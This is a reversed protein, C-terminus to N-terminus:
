VHAGLWQYGAWGYMSDGRLGGIKSEVYKGCRQLEHNLEVM